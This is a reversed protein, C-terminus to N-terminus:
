YLEKLQKKFEEITIEESTGQKLDEIAAELQNSQTKNLAKKILYRVYSSTSFGLDHAREQLQNGLSDEVVVQIRM